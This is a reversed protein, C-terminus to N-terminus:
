RGRRWDAGRALLATLSARDEARLTVALAHLRSALAALGALTPVRNQILIDAWLAPSSAAIRTM